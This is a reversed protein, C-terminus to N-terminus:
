LKALRAAACEYQNYGHQTKKRQLSQYTIRTLSNFHEYINKQRANPMKMYDLWSIAECTCDFCRDYGVIKHCDRHPVKYTKWARNIMNHDFCANQYKVIDIDMTSNIDTADVILRCETTLLPPWMQWLINGKLYKYMHTKIDESIYPLRFKLSAGLKPEILRAWNDQMKMDADVQYEFEASNSASLRIDCIFIDCKHKWKNAIEDTFYENYIKAHHSEKIAFKAPDYLHWTVNPFLEYMLPLHNCPAAGAYLIIAADSASKLYRTITQMETLFLKRQGLHCNVLNYALAGGKNGRYPINFELTNWISPLPWEKKSVSLIYKQENETYLKAFKTDLLKKAIIENNSFDYSFKSHNIDGVGYYTKKFINGVKITIIYALILLLVIFLIILITM